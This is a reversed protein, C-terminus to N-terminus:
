EFQPEYSIDIVSNNAIIKGGILHLLQYYANPFLM